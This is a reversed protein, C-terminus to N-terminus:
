VRGATKKALCNVCYEEDDGAVRFELKPDSVDTKGCSKCQHFHAGDAVKASEFKARRQSVEARHSMGKIVSPGFAVFFNAVSFAIALRGDMPARIFELLLLAGSIMGLYKVKVPLIFFVLLEQNPYLMAFAFFLTTYLTVGVPNYGFIMAGIVVSAMGGFMYLNVRFAGWAQELAGGIMVMVWVMLFLWIPSATSPIFAWTVLRWVEGSLVSNRDLLLFQFFEPQLLLMVWVVVQFGALVNVLGPIAFRGLKTELSNILSM